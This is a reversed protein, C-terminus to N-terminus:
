PFVEGAEAPATRRRMINRQEAGLSCGASLGSFLEKVVQVVTSSM